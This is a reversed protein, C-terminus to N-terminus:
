RLTIWEEHSIKEMVLCVICTKCPVQGPLMGKRWIHDKSDCPLAQKAPAEVPLGPENDLYGSHYGDTHVDHTIGDNHDTWAEAMRKFRGKLDRAIKVAQKKM